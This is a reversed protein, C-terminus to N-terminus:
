KNVCAMVILVVILIFLFLVPFGWYGIRGLFEPKCTKMYFETMYKTKAQKTRNPYIYNRISESRIGFDIYHAPIHIAAPKTEYLNNRNKIIIEKNNNNILVDENSNIPLTHSLYNFIFNLDTDFYCKSCNGDLVWKFLGYQDDKLKHERMYQFIDQIKSAPGMLFGSNPFLFGPFKKNIINCKKVIDSICITSFNCFSEKINELGIVIKDNALAHYKDLITKRNQIFLIDYSDCVIVIRDGLNSLAQKYLKMKMEFGTWEEGLGLLKYIYGNNELSQCFEDVYQNRDTAVTLVVPDTM